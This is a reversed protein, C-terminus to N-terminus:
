NPIPGFFIGGDPAEFGGACRLTPTSAHGDLVVFTKHRPEDLEREQSVTDGGDNRVNTASAMGGSIMVAVGTSLIEKLM